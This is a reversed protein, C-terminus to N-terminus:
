WNVHRHDLAQELESVAQKSTPKLADTIGFLGEIASDNAILVVTKAEAELGSMLQNIETPIELKQSTIFRSNGASGNKNDITARIGKGPYNRFATIAHLSLSRM